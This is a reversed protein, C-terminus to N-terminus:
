WCDGDYGYDRPDDCSDWLTESLVEHKYGIRDLVSRLHSMDNNPTIRSTKTESHTNNQFDLSLQSDKEQKRYEQEAELLSLAYRRDEDDRIKQQRKVMAISNALHKDDMETIPILKGQATRWRTNAIIERPIM